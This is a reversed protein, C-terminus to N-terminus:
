DNELAKWLYRAATSRLPRFRSGLKVLATNSRVGYFKRAAARLGADTIPWVDLRGLSFILFMEATWRGVGKIRTLRSIVDEDSLLRLDRLEGGMAWRAVQRMCMAKARSLGVSRLIPLSSAAIVDPSLGVRKSLRQRITNAAKTSIQQAIISRTLAPFPPRTKWRLYGYRAVLSAMVPDFSSQILLRPHTWQLPHTPGQADIM